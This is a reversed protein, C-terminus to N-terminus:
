LGLTRGLFGAVDFYCIDGMTQYKLVTRLGNEAPASELVHSQFNVQNVGGRLAENLVRGVLKGQSPVKLNLVKALTVAVDANSVPAEDVYQTKFDPGIATMNNFTDARSFSGHMGQGQQLTTDAVVVGCATPVGCGTDFSRFNVVISPTPTRSKGQLKIASLPLTGPIKGLTDNVFLGSVYDQKLLSNVIKQAYYKQNENNPLDPLYILDSGGNGAIVIEPNQSDKGLISNTTNTSFQGQTPEVISNEQDPNFLALELDDALDIGLFGPPLFGAPVNEYSLSAAYSTKSEKSITSFGHDATVFINTNKALDLKKLTAIIQALNNDVNRKAAQVTSGNIGPVLQNLSDGHNHQTGDPDRSWYVLVFPKKRQQFLPLIVKTTADVFYQQQKINAVKAGPNQSDGAKGNEGRSPTILPLSNQTLLKSIEESLPIGTSTGTADDIIITPKGTEQTIDQILVPGLKGVAATSFGSKKAIALLSIENLFNNGFQQNVERLVADNELFPVITNKASKVPVNVKINNSFDGTDGLYHGTAIVSANATTFTPFLSHSNVFNVGQEKISQLTPTDTANVTMPRLGDTVFIVANHPQPPKAFVQFGSFVAILCVLLIVWRDGQTFIRM